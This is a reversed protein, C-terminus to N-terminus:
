HDRITNLQEEVEIAEKLRGKPVPVHINNNFPGKAHQQEYTIELVNLQGEDRIHIRKLRRDDLNFHEYKDDTWVRHLTIMVDPAYRIGSRSLYILYHIYSKRLSKWRLFIRWEEYSYTWRVLINTETHKQITQM